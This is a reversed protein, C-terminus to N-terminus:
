LPGAPLLEWLHRRDRAGMKRLVARCHARVTAAGLVLQSAIEQNTRRALLLALVETERPTIGAAELPGPWALQELRGGDDDPWFVCTTDACGHLRHMEAAVVDRLVYLVTPCGLHQACPVADCATHRELRLLPCRAVGLLGHVGVLRPPLSRAALGGASRAALSSAAGGILAGRVAQRVLPDDEELVWSAAWGPAFRQREPGAADSLRALAGPLGGTSLLV